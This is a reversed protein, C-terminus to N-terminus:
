ARLSPLESPAFVGYLREYQVAYRFHPCKQDSALRDSQLRIVVTRECVPCIAVGQRVTVPQLKESM